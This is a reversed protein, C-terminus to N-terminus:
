RECGTLYPPIPSPAVLVLIMNKSAIKARTTNRVSVLFSITLVGISGSGSRQSNPPSRCVTITSTIRDSTEPTQYKQLCLTRVLGILLESLVDAIPADTDEAPDPLVVVFTIETRPSRVTNRVIVASVRARTFAPFIGPAIVRIASRSCSHSIDRALSWGIFPAFHVSISLPISATSLLRREVLGSGAVHLLERLASRETNCYIM